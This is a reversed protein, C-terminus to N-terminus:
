RRAEKVGAVPEPGRRHRREDVVEPDDTPCQQECREEADFPHRDADDDPREGM